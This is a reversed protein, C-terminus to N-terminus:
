PEKFPTKPSIYPLNLTSGYPSVATERFQAERKCSSGTVLVPSWGELQDSCPWEMTARYWSGELLIGISLCLETPPASRWRLTEM